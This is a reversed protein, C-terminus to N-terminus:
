RQQPKLYTVSRLFLIQLLIQVCCPGQFTFHYNILFLGEFTVEGEGRGRWHFHIKLAFSLINMNLNFFVCVFVCSYGLLNYYTSVSLYLENNKANM